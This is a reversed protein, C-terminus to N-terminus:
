LSISSSASHIRFKINSISDLIGTKSIKVQTHFKRGLGSQQKNYWNIGEQIDQHAEPETKITFIM